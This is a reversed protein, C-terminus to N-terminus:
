DEESGGPAPDAMPDRDDGSADGGQSGANAATAPAAPEPQALPQATGSAEDLWLAELTGGNDLVIHDVALSRVTVGPMADEGPAVLLQVGDAGAVIASGRGSAMDLRIGKLALPLSTVPLADGSATQGRFFPDFRGLVTLDETAPAGIAPPRPRAAEVARWARWGLLGVLLALAAVAILGLPLSRVSTMDGSGNGPAVGATALVADVEEGVLRIRADGADGAAESGSANFKQQLM